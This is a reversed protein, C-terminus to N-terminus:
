MKKWGQFTLYGVIIGLIPNIRFVLVTIAIGGGIIIIITLCGKLMEELGLIDKFTFFLITLIFGILFEM